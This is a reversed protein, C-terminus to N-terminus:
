RWEDGDLDDLWALSLVFFRTRRDVQTCHFHRRIIRKVFQRVAGLDAAVIVPM